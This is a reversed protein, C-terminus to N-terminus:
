SVPIPCFFILLKKKILTNEGGNAIICSEVKKLSQISSQITELPISDIYWFM